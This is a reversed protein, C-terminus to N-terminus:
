EDPSGCVYLHLWVGRQQDNEVVVHILDEWPEMTFPVGVRVERHRIIRETM